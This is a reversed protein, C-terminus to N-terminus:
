DAGATADLPERERSGAPRDPEDLLAVFTEVIAPDFQQGAHAHLEALAAGRPLAARYSRDSTMAHYADCIAVIRSAVPIHEGEIGDPYGSGDWREHHFRVITAVAEMGAVGALLEAGWVAHHRMLYLEDDDLPGPKRLIAAPLEVKGVDHFLAALELEFLAPVELGLREGLACALDVVAQSHGATYGDHEDIAGVLRAVKALITSLENSRRAAHGLAPGVLEALESLLDLERQGFRQAEMGAGLVGLVGAEHRVAAAARVTHPAAERRMRSSGHYPSSVLTRGSELVAGVLHKHVNLRSGVIEEDAGCGAVAIASDRRDPDRLLISSGDAEVLDQAQHALRDLVLSPYGSEIVSRVLATGTGQTM